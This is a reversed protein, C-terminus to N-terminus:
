DEDPLVRVELRGGGPADGNQLAWLSAYLGAAAVLEEHRGEERIRGQELVIIRDAHRVIALRHAIMILSRGAVSHRMSRQVAAETEYDLHSTAEDLAVIPAEKLLARAIAVRQREGGSLRKGGEGVATDLGGPLQDLMSQAGAERLAALVEEDAAGPRGYRVNDRVTGDFLYVDQSVPAVAARLDRLDLRRVDTGDLVVRGADVDYFRLLLRLLTSKGSGTPGVIALTEGARLHFSIDVLVRHAPHYGFSVDEFLVEGRVKATPLRVPGSRIAPQAELVPVLEKASSAARHYLQLIEETEAPVSLLRPLMYLLLNFRPQSITGEAALLGAYASSGAFAMSAIGENARGQLYSYSAAEVSAAALREGAALLRIQELGEATFSKVDAIGALSNELMQAYRSSAATQVTHFAVARRGFLRSSVFFLPVPLVLVMAILPSALALITGTVVLVVSKEVSKDLARQIFDGVRSTDHVILHSLRATGYRDFLELDQTQLTSFLDTRLRHEAGQALKRWTNRRYWHLWTNVLIMLLSLGGMFTLRAGTRGIGLTKLFAPADGRATNVTAVFTLGQLLSVSQGAMSLFVPKVLESRQPLSRRLVRSLASPTGPGADRTVGRAALDRLLERIVTEPHFGAVDPSFLILLRGTVPNARAQFIAPQQRLGNELAEALAPRGALAAIEWRERGRVASRLRIAADAAGPRRTSAM